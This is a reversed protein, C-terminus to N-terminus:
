ASKLSRAPSKGRETEVVTELEPLLDSNAWLLKQPPLEMQEDGMSNAQILLNHIREELISTLHTINDSTVTVSERMLEACLSTIATKMQDLSKQIVTRQEELSDALCSYTKLESELKELQSMSQEDHGRSEQELFLLDSNGRNHLENIYNIHAFNKQENQIFVHGIQRLDREGTVEVLTSHGQMYMELKKVGTEYQLQKKRRKSDEDEELPITEQLKREMFTHLKGYHHIVTKLQMRRKAFHVTDVEISETAELMRTEAESRQNFTISFREELKERISQQMALQRNLKEEVNCGIAKQQQLHATDQRHETNRCLLKDFKITEQKLKNELIGIHKWRCRYRGQHKVIGGPVILKEQIGNEAAIIERDLSVLHDKQQSILQMYRDNEEQLNNYEEKFIDSAM